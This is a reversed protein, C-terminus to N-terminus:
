NSNQINIRKYSAVSLLRNSNLRTVCLCLFVISLNFWTYGLIEFLAFRFTLMYSHLPLHPNFGLDWAELLKFLLSNDLEEPM